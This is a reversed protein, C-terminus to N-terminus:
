KRHEDILDLLISSNLSDCKRLFIKESSFIANADKETLILPHILNSDWQQFTMLYNSTTDTPLYSLLMTQFFMEDPIFSYKFFRLIEPSSQLTNLLKETTTHTLIGWQAGFYVKKSDKLKKINLLGIKSLFSHIQGFRWAVKVSGRALDMPYFFHHRFQRKQIISEDTFYFFHNTEKILLKVIRDNSMLPYDQGSIFVYRDHNNIYAMKLLELSAQLMNWGGWYIKYNSVTIINKKLLIENILNSSKLDIHIYFTVNETNLASILRNLHLPDKHALILYAIKM